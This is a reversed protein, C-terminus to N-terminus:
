QEGEEKSATVSFGAAISARTEKGTWRADLWANLMPRRKRTARAFRIFSVRSQSEKVSCIGPACFSLLCDCFEIAKIVSALKLTGKFIRFEITHENQLNVAEYRQKNHKAGDKIPKAHYRSWRESSRQAVHRMFRRNHAANVFCVAKAIQLKSLGLRSVHVHLGCTETSFSKCGPLLPLVTAWIKRQAELTAPTTVIEFGHALSGDDKCIIHGQPTGRLVHSAVGLDDAEVELEVGFFRQPHFPLDTSEWPRQGLFLLPPDASYQRVSHRSEACGECIGDGHYSDNHQTRDCEDCCFYNERCCGCIQEGNDNEGSECDNTYVDDCDACHFTNHEACYPCYTLSSGRRGTVDV